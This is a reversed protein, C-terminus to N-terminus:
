PRNTQYHNTKTKQAKTTPALQGRTFRPLQTQFNIGESREYTRSMRSMRSAIIEM